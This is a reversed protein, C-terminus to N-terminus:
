MSREDDYYENHNVEPTATLILHGGLLAAEIYSIEIPSM